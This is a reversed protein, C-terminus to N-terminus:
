SLVVVTRVKDSKLFEEDADVDVLKDMQHYESRMVYGEEVDTIAPAVVTKWYDGYNYAFHVEAEPDMEKLAEILDRANM